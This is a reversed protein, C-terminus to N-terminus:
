KVIKFKNNIIYWKDNTKVSAFGGIMETADDYVSSIKQGKTNIYFFGENGQVLAIGDHFGYAKIGVPPIQMVGKEDIYFGVGNKTVAILGDSMHKSISQADRVLIRATATDVILGDGDSEVARVLTKTNEIYGIKNPYDFDSASWNETSIVYNGCYLWTTGSYNRRSYVSAPLKQEKAGVLTGQTNLWMYYDGYEEFDVKAKGNSFDEARVFSPPVVVEGSTNIYGYLGNLAEFRALGESFPYVKVAHKFYLDVDALASSTGFVMLLSLMLAIIKKM